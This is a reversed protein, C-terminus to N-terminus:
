SLHILIYLGYFFLVITSATLIWDIKSTKVVKIKNYWFTKFMMFIFLSILVFLIILLIYEATIYLRGFSFLALFLLFIPFKINRFKKPNFLFEIVKEKM